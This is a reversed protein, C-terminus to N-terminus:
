CVEKLIERVIIKDYTENKTGMLALKDRTEKSVRIMTTLENSM